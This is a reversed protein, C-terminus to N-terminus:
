VIQKDGSMHYTAPKHTHTHTHTHTNHRHTYTHSHQFIREGQIETRSAFFCLCLHARLHLTSLFSFVTWDFTCVPLASVSRRDAAWSRSLRPILSTSVQCLFNDFPDFHAKGLTNGDSLWINLSALQLVDKLLPIEAVDEKLDPFYDAISTYELYASVNTLVGKSINQILDLFESFNMNLTAPRVMVLDPYPLQKLVEAPIKFTKHSEWIEVPEIGEYEGKPTLKIHVEREGYQKRFFENTWKSVAPWDHIAGTIIVPKSRTLYDNIFEEKSPMSIRECKPINDFLKTNTKVSQETCHFQGTGDEKLCHGQQQNPNNNKFIESISVSNPLGAVSFLNDLLYERHLGQVTLQGDPRRYTNCHTNVFDVFTDAFIPGTYAVSQPYVVHYAPKQLCTRDEQLLPFVVALLDSAEEVIELQKGSPWMFNRLDCSGVFIAPENQFAVDAIALLRASRETTQELRNNSIAVVCQSRSVSLVDDPTLVPTSAVIEPHVVVLIACVLITSTHKTHLFTLLSVVLKTRAAMNVGWRFPPLECECFLWNPPAQESTSRHCGGGLSYFPVTLVQRSVGWQTVCQHFM